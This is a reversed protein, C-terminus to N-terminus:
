PGPLVSAIKGTAAYALLGVWERAAMDIRALSRAIDATPALDRATGTTRYDVPDPVVPFGNARFLGVARPMHYASTVLLWTEGPKPEILTKTFRANEDTNRSQNETTIRDPAIGMAIWLRRVDAAESLSGGDLLATGGTFVMRAEPYRRSLIVAETMRDAADSITVRGREAAIRENTSGGLVVIGTPAPTDPALQPFRDELPRLMLTGVPLIGCVVLLIPVALAIRRGARALRGRGVVAWAAAMIAVVLLVTIPATVMWLLKSLLFFVGAWPETVVVM